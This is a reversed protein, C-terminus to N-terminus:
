VSLTVIIGFKVVGILVGSNIVMIWDGKAVGQYFEVFDYDGVM